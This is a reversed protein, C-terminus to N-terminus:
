MRFRSADFPTMRNLQNQATGLRGRHQSDLEFRLRIQDRIRYLTQISQPHSKQHCISCCSGLKFSRKSAVKVETPFQWIELMSPGELDKQHKLPVLTQRNHFFLGGVVM